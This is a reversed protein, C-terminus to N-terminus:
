KEREKIFKKISKQHLKSIMATRQPIEFVQKNTLVRKSKKLKNLIEQCEKLTNFEGVITGSEGDYTIISYIPGQTNDIILGYCYIIYTKDQNCVWM